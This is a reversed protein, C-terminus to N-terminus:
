LSYSYTLNLTWVVVFIIALKVELKQLPAAYVPPPLERSFDYPRIPTDPEPGLQERSPAGKNTEVLPISEDRDVSAVPLPLQQQPKPVEGCLRSALEGTAQAVQDCVYVFIVSVLVFNIGNPGGGPFMVLVGKTDAALWIHDQLIFTELSCRGVFAFAKSTASRMIVNSNRLIVFSLVPLISIYPHWKNYSFKSEETLEFVFYWVLCFVSLSASIKVILPWRLNDTFRHERCKTTVVGTLMGAYIIWLDLNIRFAAEHTSWEINFVRSLLGFLGELLWTEHMFWTILVASLVIKCVLFPAHENYRAGIAMTVYIVFYWFTVLPTFYYFVYDTDMTFTLLLTLINLRIFVQAIRRLGFDPKRLYFTTHGYGTMFLYSAVLVRIPNYIGSVKSAGTYHYILVTIQMWGKWEDTQERNLFGLDGDSRKVTSLGVFISVLSLIGFLWPDFNKHEKEWLPTRDAVFALAVVGSFVLSPFRHSFPIDKGQPPAKTRSLLYTLPGWIALAALILSQVTTPRPYSRCCTKDFSVKKPLGNNCLMNLLINAQTAILESSYHVGDDTEAPDLLTNFVRPLHIISSPILTTHSGGEYIPNLRNYLDSNMADIDSTRMSHAREPTLKSPVISEVPLIVVSDAINRPENIITDIVFEINAEWAPLGGSSNSHRLYWLGSGLVLLSPKPAQTDGANPNLLARTYTSNLFPDWRFDLITGNASTLLHDSHKLGNNAPANPLSPDILHAMQFFLIRTVSDGAFVISKGGLCHASDTPGYRHLMCGQPQWVRPEESLWRGKNLLANCHLAGSPDTGRCHNNANTPFCSLYRCGSCAAYPDSTYFNRILVIFLIIAIPLAVLRFIWTILKHRKTVSIVPYFFTGVLLGVLFGGLHAFNDVYPIYGIAVGIALEITQFILRRVPRYHYRWHAFLDVWTVAITGFIAGSAGVSPIGVLSFNGGLVNGFIGAAFYTIFFGGSGMEREIQASLSLQALMNLLIHIIGAHLFIATIFRFWQNPEKGDFGGFGCISEVSCHRDPPNATNNMCPLQFNPQIETVSKMCPPFRAGINVLASSSPGLMPNVVPKFSLPSGQERNNLVLEYIFVGTMIATLIWVVFPYRQRGIGRRKDEIRQEIPYRGGNFFRSFPGAKESVPQARSANYPDGQPDAIELDEYQSSRGGPGANKVLSQDSDYRAHDAFPDPHENYYSTQRPRLETPSGSSSSHPHYSLSKAANTDDAITTKETSSSAYGQGALSGDALKKDRDYGSDDSYFPPPPGQSPPDIIM